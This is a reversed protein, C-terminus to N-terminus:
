ERYPNLRARISRSLACKALPTRITVRVIKRPSPNRPPPLPAGADDGLRNLLKKDTHAFGKGDAVEPKSKIPGQTDKILPAPGTRSPFLTKYGYAMGGGLGIAGVLAAVIM